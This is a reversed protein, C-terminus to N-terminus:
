FSEIFRWTSETNEEIMRPILSASGDQSIEIGLSQAKFKWYYYDASSGKAVYIVKSIQGYRYGNEEAMKSTLDDFQNADSSSVSNYTYAWPYMIMGGSSHFDISGKVQHAAFFDIAAQIAPNSKKNPSEPYPYDRNPDIGNCYREHRIYGDPNVVPIFYLEHTDIMRTIRTDKGYGQVLKEILGFLVEVTILEDGHTAATLVLQPRDRHTRMDSSLKMVRLPRKEMSEGYKEITVIGPYAMALRDLHSQVSDFTHFSAWESSMRKELEKKIDKEILRRETTLLSLQKSEKQPLLIVFGDNIRQIVEWRDAIQDM